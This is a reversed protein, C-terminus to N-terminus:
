ASSPRKGIGATLTSEVEHNCPQFAERSVRWYVRESVEVSSDGSVSPM